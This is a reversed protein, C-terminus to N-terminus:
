LFGSECVCSFCAFVADCLIELFCQGSRGDNVETTKRSTRGLPGCVDRRASRFCQIEKIKGEKMKKGALVQGDAVKVMKAGKRTTGKHTQRLVEQNLRVPEGNEHVVGTNRVLKESREDAQVDVEDQM